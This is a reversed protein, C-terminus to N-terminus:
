LINMIEGLAPVIKWALDRYEKKASEFTIGRGTEKFLVYDNPGDGVCACDGIKISRANCFERLLQIKAESDDESWTTALVGSLSGCPDFVLKSCCFCNKIEFFEAIHKIAIDVGGSILIVEYRSKLYAVIEKAMNVYKYDRCLMRKINRLNPNGREKYIEVSERAWDMYSLKGQRYLECSIKREEQTVGFEDNMAVWSVGDKVTLTGEVDLCVVRIDM